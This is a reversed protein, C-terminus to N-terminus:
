EIKGLFQDELAIINNLVVNRMDESLMNRIFKNLMIVMSIVHLRAPKGENIDEYVIRIMFYLLLLNDQKHYREDLFRTEFSSIEVIFRDLINLRKLHYRTKEIDYEIKYKDHFHTVIRRTTRDDLPERLFGLYKIYYLNDLSKMLNLKKEQDEEAEIMEKMTAIYAEERLEILESYEKNISDYEYSSQMLTYFIETASKLRDITQSHQIGIVEADEGFIEIVKEESIKDIGNLPDYEKEENKNEGSVEPLPDKVEENYNLLVRMQTEDLNFEAKIQDWLSRQFEMFESTQKMLERLQKMQITEESM